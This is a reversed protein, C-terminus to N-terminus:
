KTFFTPNITHLILSSLLLVILGVVSQLIRKKASNIAESDGGSASIQIGSLIIVTVAIIGVISVGWRYITNIYGYIATTGGKTLTVQMEKCSYSVQYQDMKKTTSDRHKEMNTQAKQSCSKALISVTHPSKDDPNIYQFTNLFCRRVVYDPQPNAAKTEDSSDYTEKDKPTPNINLPAYSKTIVYGNDPGKEEQKILGNPDIKYENICAKLDSPDKGFPSELNMLESAPATAAAAPVADEAFGIMVPMLMLNILIALAIQAFIKKAM